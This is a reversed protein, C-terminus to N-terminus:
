FGVFAGVNVTNATNSFGDHSRAKVNSGEALLTLSKTLSYYLGVTGKRNSSVLTPAAAADVGNAFSLNSSGYNVGVKLPGFKYTAQFLYGDSNRKDGFGDDSSIFLGTTGLGSGHYYYGFAEFDQVDIKAFVDYGTGTYSYPNGSLRSTYDQEQTIFTASAYFKTGDAIPLTYSLKGHFGPAKKPGVIDANSASNIPDFIGITAAFGSFDPTTYDM